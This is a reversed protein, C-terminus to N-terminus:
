RLAARVFSGSSAAATFDSSVARRSRAVASRLARPYTCDPKSVSASAASNSDNTVRACLRRRSSGGSGMVRSGRSRIRMDGRSSGVCAARTRSGSSTSRRIRSAGPASTRRNGPSRTSAVASPTGGPPKSTKARPTTSTSHDFGMPSPPPPPLSAGSRTPADEVDYPQANPAASVRTGPAALNLARATDVTVANANGGSKTREISLAGDPTEKSVDTTGFSFSSRSVVRRLPVASASHRAANPSRAAVTSRSSKAAAATGARAVRWAAVRAAIERFSTPSRTPGYSERRSSTTSRAPSTYSSVSPASTPGHMRAGRSAAAAADRRKPASGARAAAKPFSAARMPMDECPAAARAPSFFIVSPPATVRPVDTNASPRDAPPKPPSSAATRPPANRTFSRAVIRRAGNVRPASVSFPGVPAPGPPRPPEEKRPDASEPPFM